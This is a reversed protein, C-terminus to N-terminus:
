KNFVPLKLEEAIARVQPKEMDGIPLLTHELAAPTIGFLVYSQDKRHDRGRMLVKQGTRPDVGTRAYHGSAVYDAGVAEAYKALKGFKLWDNCRVCPNPTRGRNYEDVFYNIVRGFDEQFNLVYFPIELMGAVRRADDADLVSCCGQKSKGSTDCSVSSSEDHSEVGDPTGLRMFVGVVDYGARLLLAAAVSSDVGGSMACVVKKRSSSM